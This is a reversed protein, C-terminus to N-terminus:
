FFWIWLEFVWLMPMNIETIKATSSHCTLGFNPKM